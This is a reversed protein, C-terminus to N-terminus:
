ALIIAPLLATNAMPKSYLCSDNVDRAKTGSHIYDIFKLYFSLIPILCFIIIILLHVFNYIILLFIKIIGRVNKQLVM